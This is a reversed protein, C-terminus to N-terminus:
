AWPSVLTYNIHGFIEGDTLKETNCITYCKHGFKFIQRNPLNTNIEIDKSNDPLCVSVELKNTVSRVKYGWEFFCVSSFTNKSKKLIYNTVYYQIKITTEEDRKLAPFFIKLKVLNGDVLSDYKLLGRYDSVKIGIVKQNDSMLPIQWEYKNVGGELAKIHVEAIRFIHGDSSINNTYVVQILEYPRM